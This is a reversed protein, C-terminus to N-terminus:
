QFLICFIKPFGSIWKPTSGPLLLVSVMSGLCGPFSDWHRSHCLCCPKCLWGQTRSEYPRGSSVGVVSAMGSDEGFSPTREAAPEWTTRRFRLRVHLVKVPPAEIVQRHRFIRAEAKLFCFEYHWINGGIFSPYEYNTLVWLHPLNEKM